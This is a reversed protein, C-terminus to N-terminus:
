INKKTKKHSKEEKKRRCLCFLSKLSIYAVVLVTVITMTLLALVDLLFYQAFTLDTANSRLYDPRPHRLLYEMWWVAKHLSPTEQDVLLEGLEQAKQTYAPNHLLKKIAEFLNEETVDHFHISDGFGLRKADAGNGLQDGAVSIVFQYFPM